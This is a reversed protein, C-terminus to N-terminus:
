EAADRISCRSRSFAIEVKRFVTSATVVGNLHRSFEHFNVSSTKKRRALGSAM